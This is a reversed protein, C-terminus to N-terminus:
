HLAVTLQFLQIGAGESRAYSLVDNKVKRPRQDRIKGNSLRPILM